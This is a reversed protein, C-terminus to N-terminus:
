RVLLARVAVRRRSVAEIRVTGARESRLAFVRITRRGPRGALSVTRVRGAWRVRVAGCGRCTGAVLALERGRVRRVAIRAGRRSAKLRAPRRQWPGAVALPGPEGVAPGPEGTAPTAADGETIVPRPLPARPKLRVETATQEAQYGGSVAAFAGSVASASLVTHAGPLVPGAPSDLRGGLQAPGSSAVRGVGGATVAPRLVAGTTQNYGKATVTSGPGLDLVGQNALAGALALSRGGRLVLEGGGANRELTPLADVQVGAGTRRVVKSAAGDLVLRAANVTLNGPVVLTGRVVYEGGAIGTEGLFGVATWNVLEYLELSGADVEVIGDNDVPVRADVASAGTKRLLGTNHVVSDYGDGFGYGELESDGRLEMTGRNLVSAGDRVELYSDEVTLTGRNVLSRSAGIATYASDDGAEPAVGATAGPEIITAGPGEEYGGTWTLTGAVKVDGPGLISGSSHTLTDGAPIALTTGDSLYVDAGSVAVDGDIVAGSAMTFTGYEFAIAGAGASRFTGTQTLASYADLRLDGAASDLVLGDNDLNSVYSDGAGGLKEITGAPLNAVLLGGIIGTSGGCAGGASDLEIRGANRLEPPNEDGYGSLTSGGDLELTGNVDMRRGEGLNAWDDCGPLVVRGSGAITTTGPLEHSGGTWTLRGSVTVNGSLEGATQLVDDAITLTDGARVAVEGAIEAFDDLRAAGTLVHDQGSLVVNATAATGRFTGTHPQAAGRTLMLQGAQGEALGDNRVPVTLYSWNTGGSKRLIGGAAVHLVPTAGAGSSGMGGDAKFDALGAVELARTEGLSVSGTGPLALTAGSAVSTTGAGAMTGGSWTFTGSAVSLTGAGNLTGSSMASAGTASVTGSPITVTTSALTLGTQLAAGPDLQWTGGSLRVTGAGGGFSGSSGNSGGNSLLLQGGDSVVAGDNEVPVRLDTDNAGTATRRITGTNRIAPAAGSRSVYRNDTPLEFTGANQLLRGESLTTFGTNLLKAGAAVTTTGPGRMTGGSWTLAGSAITLGGPGGVTGASITNAGTSTAAGSAVTLEGANLEVGGTLAAGSALAHTGGGLEVTGAGGGFTGTSEGGGNSLVLRGTDSVVSGDNDVPVRLDADNVGAATRRITGTNHVLPAAGSRTVYRNDTALELTGQNEVVRGESLTPFGTSRLTAGSKVTTTGPGQMTSTVWTLTGSDVSLGGPGALTGASFTNAGTAAATGSAVALTGATLDVGGLLKAGGALTHTGGGLEVTGAGGGFTGASEGGGGSLVLRGADSTVTGDNDVPVRLDADNIGSATRVITGRNHILPPTTGSRSVYRNDTTLELRGTPEIELVRGESLTPFGTVLLRGGDMVTTTGPGAMTENTLTVARGAPVCADVGSAPM